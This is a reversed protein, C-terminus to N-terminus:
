HSDWKRSQQDTSQVNPVQLTDLLHPFALGTWPWADFGDKSQPAGRHILMTINQQDILDDIQEVDYRTQWKAVPSGPVVGLDRTVGSTFLKVFGEIGDDGPSLIMDIRKSLISFGYLKTGTHLRCLRIHEILLQPVGPVLLWPMADQTYM